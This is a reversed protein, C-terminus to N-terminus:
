CAATAQARTAASGLEVVRLPKADVNGGVLRQLKIVASRLAAAQATLEEAAAATEEAGASNNQVVREMQSVASSVQNAGRSQEQSAATLEAIVGKVKTVIQENETILKSVQEYLALTESTKGASREILTQTEQAARASSRALNRVEDAVVAFGMGAEGARAAEVAANLALINTQFSIEDISKIVKATQQSAATAERATVHVQEMCRNIGGLNTAAEDVMLQNLQQSNEANRQSMGALEQLTASTEELAAAQESSGQALLQSSSSVQHAAASVSDAAAHLEEALARFATPMSRIFAILAALIAAIAIVSGWLLIRRATAVRTEIAIHNAQLRTDAATQIDQVIGDIANTPERDIGKVLKDIAQGAAPNSADFHTLAERYKEGLAAHQKATSIVHETPLDLQRLLGLLTLFGKQTATEEDLFAQRYKAFSEPDNGRLLTDKWEQVQKKFHVQTGRTVDVATTLLRNENQSHEAVLELRSLNVWAIAAVCLVGAGVIASVLLFKVRLNLDTGNPM